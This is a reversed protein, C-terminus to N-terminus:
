TDGVEGGKNRRRLLVSAHMNKEEKKKFKMHDTFQIKLIGLKPAVLWKDTHAYWTHNSIYICLIDL